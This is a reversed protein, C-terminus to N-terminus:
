LFQFKQVSSASSNCIRFGGLVHGDDPWVWWISEFRMSLMLKWPMSDVAHGHGYAGLPQRLEGDLLVAGVREALEVAAAVPGHVDRPLM